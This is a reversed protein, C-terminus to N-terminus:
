NHGIIKLLIDISSAQNVDIDVIKSFYFDNYLHNIFTINSKDVFRKELNQDINKQNDNLRIIKSFLDVFNSSKSNIIPIEVFDYKKLQLHRFLVPHVLNNLKKL